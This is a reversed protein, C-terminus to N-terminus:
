SFLKATSVSEEHANSNEHREIDKYLSKNVKINASYGTIFKSEFEGPKKLPRYAMCSSCYFCITESSYTIWKRQVANNNPLINFYIRKFDLKGNVLKVFPQIPHKVFFQNKITISDTRCPRIFNAINSSQPVHQCDLYLKNKNEFNFDSIIEEEESNSEVSIQDVLDDCGKDKNELTFDSITEEEKSSLEIQHVTDDNNGFSLDSIVEEEKFKIGCIDVFVPEVRLVRGQAVPKLLM